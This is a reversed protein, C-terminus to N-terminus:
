NEPITKAPPSVRRRENRQLYYLLLFFPVLSLVFFLPGGRHHIPSDIMRPGIHICLEGIVFVRFGNRLIALPIVVLCLVVRKWPRRLLLQGALLSTIFLVLTSHIGSCEPAVQLSIGPLQIIMGSRLTPTGTWDFMWGAALVSGHQLWNEMGDRMFVPIPIMFILLAFPFALLRMTGAGLFLFGAGTLFLLFELTFLALRDTDAVPSAFWHWVAAAAGAAFFLAASIRAPTSTAPLKNRSQAALYISVLPILPIYSYLNDSVAFRLLNWLPLSFGLVLGAVALAFRRLPPSVWAPIKIADAM